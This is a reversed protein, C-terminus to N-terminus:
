ADVQLPWRGLIAYGSPTSGALTFEKVPWALPECEPLIEPRGAQRLLTVHPFYPREDLSFGERRVAAEIASVLRTLQEPIENMGVWAIRNHHWYGSKDMSMAFARGSVDRMAEKLRALNADDTEGIFALTLHISKRRTRKGGCAKHLM